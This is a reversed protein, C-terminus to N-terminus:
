DLRENGMEGRTEHSLRHLDKGRRIFLMIAPFQRDAINTRETCVVPGTSDHGIICKACVENLIRNIRGTSHIRITLRKGAGIPIHEM